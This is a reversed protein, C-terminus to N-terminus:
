LVSRIPQDPSFRGMLGSGPTVPQVLLSQNFGLAFFNTNTLSSVKQISLPVYSPRQSTSLFTKPRRSVISDDNLIKLAKVQGSFTGDANMWYAMLANRSDLSIVDLGGDVSLGSEVTAIAGFTMTEINAVVAKRQIGSSTAVSYLILVKSIPTLGLNASSMASVSSSGSLTEWSFPDGFTFTFDGGYPFYCRRIQMKGTPIAWAVYFDGAWARGATLALVPDTNEWESTPYLTLEQLFNEYLIARVHGVGGLDRWFVMQYNDHPIMQFDLVGSAWTVTPGFEVSNGVVALAQAHGILTSTGHLAQYVVFSSAYDTSIGRVQPYFVDNITAGWYTPPGFSISLGSLTAVVAGGRTTGDALWESYLFLIKNSSIPISKIDYCLGAPFTAPSGFATSM